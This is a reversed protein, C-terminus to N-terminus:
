RTNTTQNNQEYIRQYISKGNAELIKRAISRVKSTFENDIRRRAIPTDFVGMLNQICELLEVKTQPIDEEKM